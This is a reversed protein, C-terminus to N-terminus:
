MAIRLWVYGHMARSVGVYGYMAICFWLNARCLGGYSLMAM